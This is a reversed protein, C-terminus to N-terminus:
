PAAVVEGLETLNDLRVDHYLITPSYTRLFSALLLFINPLSERIYNPLMRAVVHLALKSVQWMM